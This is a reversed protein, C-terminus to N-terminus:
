MPVVYYDLKINELNGNEDIYSLVTIQNGCVIYEGYSFQNIRNDYLKLDEDDSLCKVSSINGDYDIEPIYVKGSSDLLCCNDTIKVIDINTLVLEESLNRIDINQSNEELVYVDGNEDLAYFSKGEISTICKFKKGNIKDQAEQSIDFPFELKGEETLIALGNCDMINNGLSGLLGNEVSYLNGSEDIYYEGNISKINEGIYNGQINYLEGNELLILEPNFDKVNQFPLDIEIKSNLYFIGNKYYLTNGDEDIFLGTDTIEKIHNLEGYIYNGNIRYLSGDDLLIFKEGYSGGIRFDIINQNNLQPYEDKINRLSNDSYNFLYLDGDETLIYGDGIKKKKQDKLDIFVEELKVWNADTITNALNIYYEEDKTILVYDYEGIVKDISKEFEIIKFMSEDTGTMIIKGDETLVIIYEEGLELISKIEYNELAKFTEKINVIAYDEHLNIGYQENNNDTVIPCAYSNDMYDFQLNKWKNEESIYKEEGAESYAVLKNEQTIAILGNNHPNSVVKNYMKRTMPIYYKDKAKIYAYKDTIFELDENQLEPVIGTYIKLKGNKTISLIGSNTVYTKLIKDQNVNGLNNMMEEEQKARNTYLDVAQQARTFIGNDGITLNISVAALILLVIITVVLAVLTIGKVGKKMKIKLKRDM